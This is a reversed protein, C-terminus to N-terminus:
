MSFTSCSKGKKSHKMFHEDPFKGWADTKYKANSAPYISRGGTGDMKTIDGGQLVFDPVVRHFINGAFTKQLTTVAGNEDTTSGACLARFNEAALPVKDAYLQMVIRGVEKGGVSLDMFVKPGSGSPEAINPLPKGDPSLGYKQYLKAFLEKERLKYKELTSDVTSIKEPNYEEYFKTLKAKYDISDKDFTTKAIGFPTENNSGGSKPASFSFPSSGTSTGFVSSGFTNVTTAANNGFIGGSSNSPTFSFPSPNATKSPAGFGGFSSTFPNSPAKTSTKEASTSLASSTIANDNMASPFSFPTPAASSSPNTSFASFPNIATAKNPEVAGSSGRFSLSAFPSSKESAQATAGDEHLKKTSPDFSSFAFQKTNASADGLSLSAFPNPEAKLNTCEDKEESGGKSLNFLNSVATTSEISPKLSLSAFPNTSKPRDKNKSSNKNNSKKSLSIITRSTSPPATSNADGGGNIIIKSLTKGSEAHQQREREEREM